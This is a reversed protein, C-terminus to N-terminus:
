GVGRASAWGALALLNWTKWRLGDDGELFATVLTRVALPDLWPSLPGREPLVLDSLMPRLDTRLWDSLPVGFGMKRRTLTRQPLVDAYAERLIAKGGAPGFLCDDPLVSVSAALAIDLFPSRAELGHAMTARDMKALLDGPLYTQQDIWPLDAATRGSERWLADLREPTARPDSAELVDPRMLAPLEDPHFHYLRDRYGPWPDRLFAAGGVIRERRTLRGATRLALAAPSALPGIARRVGEIARFVRYREYGAFLEDGGDGTLVVTVHGAAAEAVALTALASSDAFPEDYFRVLDGFLRPVDADPELETHDTDFRRAVLRAYETEDFAPNAFGVSFTRPRPGAAAMEAVVISSDLGGSLFAGLPVDSELRMRVAEAISARVREAAEAREIREPARAPPRWYRRVEIAGDRWEALCGQPIKRVGEYVSHPAFTYQLTLYEAIAAVDVSPRTGLLEVLADTTSAFALAGDRVSYCIPKKGFRDRALLARRERRDYVVFAFMGRLRPVFDAGDRDYLHLLVETDSRTRFAYGQAELERRLDRHNYIEGNFVVVYRGDPSHMPQAGGEIDIIALRTHGLGAGPERWVACGDPGRHRLSGVAADLRAPDVERGDAALVGAIGCV